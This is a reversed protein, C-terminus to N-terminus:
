VYIKVSKRGVATLALIAAERYMSKVPASKTILFPKPNKKVLLYLCDWLTLSGRQGPM